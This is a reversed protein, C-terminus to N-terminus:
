SENKGKPLNKVDRLLQPSKLERDLVHELYYQLSRTVDSAVAPDIKLKLVEDMPASMLFRWVKLVDASIGWSTEDFEREEPGIVGGLEPSLALGSQPLKEGCRVCKELEPKFGLLSLLKLQYAQVVLEPKDGAELYTLAEKTLDFVEINEQHETLFENALEAVQYALAVRQLDAKLKPWASILEVETIIDLNKGVALQTKIHNLLDLNGGKRSNTLRVGKAVSSVKGRFRTLLTVVQDAEGFNSKRLVIAEASYSPM